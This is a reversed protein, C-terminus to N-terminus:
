LLTDGITIGGLIKAGARISVNDGIIPYRDAGNFGITVQQSDRKVPSPWIAIEWRWGIGLVPFIPVLKAATGSGAKAPALVNLQAFM